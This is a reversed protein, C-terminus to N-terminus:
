VRFGSGRMGARAPHPIGGCNVGVHLLCVRCLPCRGAGVRAAEQSAGMIRFTGNSSKGKSQWSPWELEGGHLQGGAFGLQKVSSFCDEAHNRRSSNSATVARSM